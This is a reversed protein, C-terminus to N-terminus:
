KVVLVGENDADIFSKANILKDAKPYIDGFNFSAEALYEGKTLQTTEIFADYAHNQSPFLPWGYQYEGECLINGTNDTIAVRGRPRFHVNGTNKITTFVAYGNKGNRTESRIVTNEVVGDFRETGEAAVYVAIGFRTGISMSGSGPNLAALFVMGMVEGKIDKPLRATYKITRTKGPAITFKKPELKLWEAININAEERVYKKWNEPQVDVTVTENFTSSVTIKGSVSKGPKVKTEIVPVKVSLGAHASGANFVIPLAAGICVILIQKINM